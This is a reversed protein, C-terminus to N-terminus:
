HQEKEVLIFRNDGVIKPDFGGDILNDFVEELYQDEVELLYNETYEEARITGFKSTLLLSLKTTLEEQRINVRKQVGLEETFDIQNKYTNHTPKKKEGKVPTIFGNTRLSMQDVESLKYFTTTM